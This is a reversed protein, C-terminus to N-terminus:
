LDLLNLGTEKDKTRNLGSSDLWRHIFLEVTGAAEAEKLHGGSAHLSADSVTAHLHLAPEGDQWAINGSLNALELPEDFKTWEYEQTTLDYFGLEAWSLGGLGVVWGGKLDHEKIFATLQKVVLEGKAFRLTYNYEDFTYTM